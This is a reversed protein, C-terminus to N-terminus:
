LKPDSVADLYDQMTNLNRYWDWNQLDVRKVRMMPLLEVIRRKGQSLLERAAHIVSKRYVAFLPELRGDGFQPIVIDFGPSQLVMKLIANRNLEPLDCSTVFNLDFSSASLCSLIGMLPGQGPAEDPVVEIGLFSYRGQRDAGILVDDFLPSLQCVAREILTRGHFPMLSKDQGMRSSKGGALIIAAAKPRIHWRGDVLVAREPATHRLSGNLQYM